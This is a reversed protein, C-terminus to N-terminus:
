SINFDAVAKRVPVYLFKHHVCKMKVKLRRKEVVHGSMQPRTVWPWASGRITGSQPLWQFLTVLHGTNFVLTWYELM